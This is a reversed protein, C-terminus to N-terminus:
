SGTSDYFTKDYSEPLGTLLVRPYSLDSSTAKEGSMIDIGGHVDETSCLPLLVKAEMQCFMGYVGVFDPGWSTSSSCLSEFTNHQTANSIILVDEM